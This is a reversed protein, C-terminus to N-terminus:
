ATADSCTPFPAIWALVHWLEKEFMDIRDGGFDCILLAHQRRSLNRGCRPSYLEVLEAAIKADTSTYLKITIISPRASQYAVVRRMRLRLWRVPFLKLPSASSATADLPDTLATSQDIPFHRVVALHFVTVQTLSDVPHRQIGPSNVDIGSMVMAIQLAFTVDVGFSSCTAISRHSLIGTSAISRPPIGSALTLSSRHLTTRPSAFPLSSRDRHDRSRFTHDTGDPGPVNFHIILPSITRPHPRFASQSLSM